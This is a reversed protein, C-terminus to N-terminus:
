LSSWDLARQIQLENPDASEAPGNFWDPAAHVHTAVLELVQTVSLLILLALALIVIIALMFLVHEGDAVGAIFKRSSRRRQADM